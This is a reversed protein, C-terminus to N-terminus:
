QGITLMPKGPERQGVEGIHAALIGEAGLAAMLADRKAEPVFLLLGGSTQADHLLVKLHDEVSGEYGVEAAYSQINAITGGPAM